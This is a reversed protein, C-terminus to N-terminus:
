CGPAPSSGTGVTTTMMGSTVLTIRKSKAPQSDPRCVNFDFSTAKPVMNGQATFIVVGDTPTIGGGIAAVTAKSSISYNSATDVGPAVHLVADAPDVFTGDNKFVSDAVVSWGNSWNNSSAGNTNVLAVLTGRHVAESRALNLDTLLGNTAETVHNSMILDRFSPLALAVLVFAVIITIMLEVLTFGGACRRM